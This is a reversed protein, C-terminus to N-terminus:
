RWQMQSLPVTKCIDITVLSDACLYSKIAAMPEADKQDLDFPYKCGTLVLLLMLIYINKM